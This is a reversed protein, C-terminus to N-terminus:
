SRVISIIIVVVVIVFLLLSSLDDQSVDEISPQQDHSHKAVKYCYCCCCCCCCCLTITSTTNDVFDNWSILPIWGEMVMMMMMMWGKGPARCRQQILDFRVSLPMSALRCCRCVIQISQLRRMIQNDFHIFSHM